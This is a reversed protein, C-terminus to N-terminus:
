KGISHSLPAEERRVESRPTQLCSYYDYCVRFPRDTSGDITCANKSMVKVPGPFSPVSSSPVLPKWDQHGVAAASASLVVAWGGLCVSQLLHHKHLCIFTHHSGMRRISPLRGYRHPPCVIEYCWSILKSNDWIAGPSPHHAISRTEKILLAWLFGFPYIIGLCFTCHMQYPYATLIHAVRLGKGGSILVSSRTVAAKNATQETRDALSSPSLRGPM